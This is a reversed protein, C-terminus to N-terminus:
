ASPRRSSRGWGPPSPPTATGATSSPAATSRSSTARTSSRRDGPIGHVIVENPSACIVAPYATTASSTRGPGGDSSCRAASADLDATTVGPRVADRICEHMEAVVRGARACSGRAREAAEVCGVAHEPRSPPRRRRRGAPRHGRRPHRPRRGRRAPGAEAYWAILPSTESEYPDLRKASPRPTDDDRQVVEGGCNDCIWANPRRRTSPTSAAATPACGVPPSASSCSTRPSRSTSWWTSRHRSGALAEAQVVTRPFGDLIFGGGHTPSALREDVVGVMVEDPVLEGADMIAKAECASSPARTAVAARLMDGTSIHPVGYHEALRVASPARARARAGSSRRPARGSVEPVRRLQADDAPQRDAEDDRPGRGRRHPDLHRRLSVTAGPLYTALLFSPLLAVAAIFLAGPLTIRSLIKALYRETQPGPRIGPIFGGQKRITDAQKAPDFTIATYFYAFGIILLGFVILYIPANPQGPQRRGLAAREAGWGDAPLVFSLLLPLYLVSSAFIIPIVGSQNVKLPIYTSQGGYM